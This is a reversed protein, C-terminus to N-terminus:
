MLRCPASSVTLRTVTNLPSNTHTNTHTHTLTLSHRYLLCHATIQFCEGESCHGSQCFAHLSLSLSLSLPCLSLFFSLFFSLYRSHQLLTVCCPMLEFPLARSYALYFIENCETCLCYLFSDMWADMWGDMWGDM